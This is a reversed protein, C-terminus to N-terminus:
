SLSGLVTITQGPFSQSLLHDLKFERNCVSVSSVLDRLPKLVFLREHLRPHPIELPDCSIMDGFFLVDIDIPRPDDKAKDVKGLSREIEQINVWLLELAASCLFSCVTNTFQGQPKSSLPTSAYLKAQRFHFVYPLNGIAQLALEVNKRPTGLNAGIALYVKKVTTCRVSSRHLFLVAFDM